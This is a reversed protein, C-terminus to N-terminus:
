MGHASFEIAACELSLCVGDPEDESEHVPVFFRDNFDVRAETRKEMATVM